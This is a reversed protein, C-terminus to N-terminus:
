PASVISVDSDCTGGGHISKRRNTSTGSASIAGESWCGDHTFVAESSAAPVVSRLSTRFSQYLVQGPKRPGNRPSEPLPCTSSSRSTAEQGPSTRSQRKVRLLLLRVRWASEERPPM